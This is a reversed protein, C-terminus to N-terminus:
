PQVKQLIIRTRTLIKLTRLTKNENLPQPFFDNTLLFRLKGTNSKMMIGSVGHKMLQLSTRKVNFM